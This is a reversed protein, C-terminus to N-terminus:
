EEKFLNGYAAEFIKISVRKCAESGPNTFMSLPLIKIFFYLLTGM